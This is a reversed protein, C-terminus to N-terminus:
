SMVDDDAESDVLDSEDLGVNQAASSTGIISAVDCIDGRITTGSGGAFFDGM